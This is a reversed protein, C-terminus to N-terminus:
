NSPNAGLRLHNLGNASPKHSLEPFQSEKRNLFNDIRAQLEVDNLM